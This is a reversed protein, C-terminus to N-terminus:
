HCWTFVLLQASEQCVFLKFLQSIRGLIWITMSTQGLLSFLLDSWPFVKILSEQVFVASKGGVNLIKKSSLIRHFCLLDSVVNLNCQSLGSRGSCSSLRRGTLSSRCHGLWAGCQCHRCTGSFHEHNAPKSACQEVPNAPWPAAARCVSM